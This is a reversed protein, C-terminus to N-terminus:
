KKEHKKGEFHKKIVEETLHGKAWFKAEFPRLPVIGIGDAIRAWRTMMGGKGVLFYRGCRKTQYLGATWSSPGGPEGHGGRGIFISKESDYRFGHLTRKM